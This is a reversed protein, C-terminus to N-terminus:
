PLYRSAALAATWVAKVSVRAEDARRVCDEYEPAANLVRGNRLGLKVRVPGYRTSVEEFERDLVTRDVRYERVGLTTSERLIADVVAKRRDAPALAGLLHGPRGKKMTAPLVYADLAGLGLLTEVLHGLLQPNCDDLNAEVVFTGQTSAQSATGLTARLVNARDPFEKSGVGFGVSEVVMEPPPTVQALTRLLAAGTPTTLEGTGEFRVPVGRLIELTAPAPIPIMGHATKITGSGMPPPASFVDPNGLLDLVVAAGCIDVISDVAGVEHFHIREIPVAHITAEAEGIRQFVALAREKARPSLEPAREILSRIESLPRHHHHDHDHGHHAHEIEVNLHTGVIAHREARSREFRWGPLGLSRLPREIAELPVGLDLAAALFMDGAIGGIPELYLVKATM